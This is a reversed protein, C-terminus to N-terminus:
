LEDEKVELIQWDGPGGPEWELDNLNGHLLLEGAEEFAVDENEAEVPIVTYEWRERGVIVQYNKDMM